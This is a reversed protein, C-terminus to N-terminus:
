RPESVTFCLTPTTESSPNVPLVVGQISRGLPLIFCGEYGVWEDDVRTLSGDSEIVFAPIPLATKPTVRELVCAHVPANTTPRYISGSGADNPDLPQASVADAWPFFVAQYGMRLQPVKVLKVPAAFDDPTLRPEPSFHNDVWVVDRDVTLPDPPVAQATYGPPLFLALLEPRAPTNVVLPPPYATAILEAVGKWNEVPVYPVEGPRRIDPNLVALLALGGAACTVRAKPVTLRRVLTGGIWIACLWFVPQAPVFIRPPPVQWLAALGIAAALSVLWFAAPGTGSGRRVGFLLGVTVGGILLWRGVVPIPGFFIDGLQRLAGMGEFHRGHADGVERYAAIFEPLLPLHLLFLAIGTTGALVWLTRKPLPLFFAFIAAPAFLLLISPVTWIALVGGIGIGLWRGTARTKTRTQEVLDWGLILIALVLLSQLGYGRAELAVALFDYSAGLVLVVLGAEFVRHRRWFFVGAMGILAITALASLSRAPLSAFSGGAPGLAQLLNFFIHNNPEAYTSLTTWAGQGSYDRISIIEDIWLSSPLMVWAFLVAHLCGIGALGAAFIPEWRIAKRDPSETHGRRDMM